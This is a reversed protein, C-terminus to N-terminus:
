KYYTCMCINGLISEIKILQRILVIEFCKTLTTTFDLDKLFSIDYNATKTNKQFHVCTYFWQILKITALFTMRKVFDRFEICRVRHDRKM